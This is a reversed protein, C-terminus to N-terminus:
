EESTESNYVSFDIADKTAWGAQYCAEIYALGGLYFAVLEEFSQFVEYIAKEDDDEAIKYKMPFTVRDPYAAAADHKAKFNTQNEKSLWVKAVKGEDDGHLVTWEYGCLIKEDTDADIDAIIAKKIDAFSLQSIQKKYFYIENWTANESDIEQYGYCVVVRSADQYIPAFESIKGQVKNM